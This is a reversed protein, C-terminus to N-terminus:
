AKEFEEKVKKDIDKESYFSNMISNENRYMSIGKMDYLKPPVKYKKLWELIENLEKQRKKTYENEESFIDIIVFVLIFFIM